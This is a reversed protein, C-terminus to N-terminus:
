LVPSRAARAARRYRKSDKDAAGVVLDLDATITDLWIFNGGHKAFVLGNLGSDYNWDFFGGAVLKEGGVEDQLLASLDVGASQAFM